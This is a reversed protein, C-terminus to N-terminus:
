EPGPCLISSNRNFLELSDKLATIDADAGQLEYTMEREKRLSDIQRDLSLLKENRVASTEEIAYIVDGDEKLADIQRDSSLKTRKLSRKRLLRSIKKSLSVRKVTATRSTITTSVAVDELEEDFIPPVPYSMFAIGKSLNQVGAENEDVTRIKRTCSTEASPAALQNHAVDKGQLCNVDCTM